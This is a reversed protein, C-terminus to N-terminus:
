ALVGNHVVEKIHKIQKPSLGYYDYIRQQSESSALQDNGLIRDCVDAFMTEDTAALKPFPLACLNGKLVKVEGFMKMYAFQFLESNLFLLVTKIGLTPLYPILINASNLFLRRKDDYAFVLRNSIFKYVLKEDARYIKDKAVQQFRSRDYIIYKQAPRLLYPQIEKGTFIAESGEVPTPLLKAANDGTVIGLAWVSNTLTSYQKKFLKDLISQEDKHVFAFTCNVTQRLVEPKVAGHFEKGNFFKVEETSKTKTVEIAVLRTTVGSFVKPYRSIKNVTYDSLLRERLWAHARVNTVAEPLLFNLTGGASLQALAKTM